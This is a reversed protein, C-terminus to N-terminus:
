SRFLPYSGHLNRNRSVKVKGQPFFVGLPVSCQLVDELLDLALRDLMKNDGPVEKVGVQLIEALKLRQARRVLRNVNM